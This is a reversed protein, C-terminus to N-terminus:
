AAKKLARWQEFSATCEAYRETTIGAIEIETMLQALSGQGRNKPYRARALGEITQQEKPPLKAFIKHAMQRRYESYGM